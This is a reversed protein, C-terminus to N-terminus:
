FENLPHRSHRCRERLGHPGHGFADALREIVCGPTQHVKAQAIKREVACGGGETRALALPHLQGPGHAVAGGAYQIHQIFRGDTQMRGIKFSKRAHHVIQHSVAVSNHQYIMVCLHQRMRVPNDFKARLSAGLAATDNGLACGGAQPVVWCRTDRREEAPLRAQLPTGGFKETRPGDAHASRPYM